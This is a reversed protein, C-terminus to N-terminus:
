SSVEANEIDLKPLFIRHFFIVITYDESHCDVIQWPLLSKGLGGGRVVTVRLLVM